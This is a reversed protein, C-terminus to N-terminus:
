SASGAEELSGTTTPPTATVANGPSAVDDGPARISAGSEDGAARVTAAKEAKGDPEDSTADRGAEGPPTDASADAAKESEEPVADAPPEAEREADDPKEAKEVKAEPAPPAAANEPTAVERDVLGLRSRRAAALELAVDAVATVAGPRGVSYAMEAM